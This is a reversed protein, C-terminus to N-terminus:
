ASELRAQEDVGAGRRPVFSSALVLAKWRRGELRPEGAIASLTPNSGVLVQARGSKSLPVKM